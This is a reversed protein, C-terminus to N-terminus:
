ATSGKKVVRSPLPTTTSPLESFIKPSTELFIVFSLSSFLKRLATQAFHLVSGNAALHNKDSKVFSFIGIGEVKQDSMVAKEGQRGDPQEGQGADGIAKQGALSSSRAANRLFRSRGSSLNTTKRELRM